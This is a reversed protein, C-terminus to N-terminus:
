SSSFRGHMGRVCARVEVLVSYMSQDTVRSRYKTETILYEYVWKVQEYPDDIGNSKKLIKELVRSVQAKQESLEQLSVTYSFSIEM